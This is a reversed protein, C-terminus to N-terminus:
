VYLGLFMIVGVLRTTERRERAGTGDVTVGTGALLSWVYRLNQNPEEGVNLRCAVLACMVAVVAGTDYPRQLLQGPM